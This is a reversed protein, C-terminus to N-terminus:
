WCERERAGPVEDPMKLGAVDSMQVHDEHTKLNGERCLYRAPNLATPAFPISNLWPLPDYFPDSAIM